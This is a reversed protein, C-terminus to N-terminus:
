QGAGPVEGENEGGDEEGGDSRLAHPTGRLGEGGGEGDDDDELDIDPLGGWFVRSAAVDSASIPSTSDRSAPTPELSHASQSMDEAPAHLSQSMDEAPAHLSQSMDEAPAHLSQSMDEAPAHLSQSM